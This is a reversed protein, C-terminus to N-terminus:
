RNKLRVIVAKMRGSSNATDDWNPTDDNEYLDDSPSPEPAVRLGRNFVNRRDVAHEIFSM